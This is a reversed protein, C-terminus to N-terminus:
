RQDPVRDGNENIYVTGSISEFTLDKINETVHFGNDPSLGQALTRNVGYAWILVADYLYDSLLITSGM